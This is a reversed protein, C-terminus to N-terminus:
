QQADMWKPRAIEVSVVGEDIRVPYTRLPSAGQPEVCAGSRVDFRWGHLPCEIADDFYHGYTLDGNAHPCIPTIARVEEESLRMLLVFGNQTKVRKPQNIKLDTVNVGTSVFSDSTNESM